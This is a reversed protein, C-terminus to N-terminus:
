GEANEDGSKGCESKVNGAVLQETADAILACAAIVAILCLLKKM